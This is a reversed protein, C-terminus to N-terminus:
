GTHGLRAVIGPALLGGEGAASIDASLDIFPTELVQGANLDLIRIAGEKEVIFLHNPDGPHATAFLPQDLGSAVREAAIANPDYGYVIDDGSTGNLSNAGDNGIILNTAMM